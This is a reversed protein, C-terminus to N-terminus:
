RELCEKLKMLSRRLWTRMTNLPVGFRAALLLIALNENVGGVRAADIQILDVAGAQLLQKFIVRNQGHEGTSIPTPSVAQRIAAHGFPDLPTGRLRKMRKLTGLLPRASRGLAIKREFQEEGYVLCSLLGFLSCLGALHRASRSRIM